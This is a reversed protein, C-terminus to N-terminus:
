DAAAKAILADDIARARVAAPREYTRGLYAAFADRKPLMGFQMGWGVQSAMYLDAATFRDGTLYPRAAIAQELAEVLREHTGYGVMVQREAPPQAGLAQNVMAQEVPGAAFFMWRYYDAREDATPGLEAAPFTEALYTLIAATESVTRGKHVITPVKAMAKVAQVKAVDAPVRLDVLVTDYPIALEELMWRVIRGRSMPATYFTLDTM